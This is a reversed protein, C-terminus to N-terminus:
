HSFPPNSGIGGITASTAGTYLYHTSAKNREQCWLSTKPAAAIGDAKQPDEATGALCGAHRRKVRNPLRERSSEVEFASGSVPSLRVM